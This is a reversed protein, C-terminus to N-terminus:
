ERLNKGSRLLWVAGVGFVVNLLVLLVLGQEIPVDSTGTMGYRLGNVMYLVPNFLSVRDWPSPLMAISYFVGGLFTLPMIVFSPLLNIHDFDRGLIAVILGLLAFALATLLMFVFIILPNHWASAGMLMAVVWIITGILMARAIAAGVYGLLIQLPSLPTVLIDVITGQIKTIFLSFASNMYANSILALMVLGPVLFDIYPVGDIEQLRAGLSFGFVLFYLMTTLVPSVVTQGAIRWFRLIEKYFLAWSGRYNSRQARESLEAIRVRAAAAAAAPARGEESM